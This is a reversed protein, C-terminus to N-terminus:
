KDPFSFQKAISLKIVDLHQLGRQYYTGGHFKAAGWEANPKDFFITKEGSQIDHFIGSICVADVGPKSDLLRFIEYLYTPSIMDDDDIFCVYEGRAAGLLQNRKAGISQVKDDVAILVETDSRGQRGLSAVLSRLDGSRGYVSCVLISLRPKM